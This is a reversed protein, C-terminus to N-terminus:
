PTQSTLEACEAFDRCPPLLHPSVFRRVVRHWTAAREPLRAVLNGLLQLSILLPGGNAYLRLACM